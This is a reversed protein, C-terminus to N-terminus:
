FCSFYGSPTSPAQRSGQKRNEVEKNENAKGNGKNRVSTAKKAIRTMQLREIPHVDGQPSLQKCTSLENKFFYAWIKWERFSSALVVDGLDSLLDPSYLPLGAFLRPSPGLEFTGQKAVTSDFRRGQIIEWTDNQPRSSGAETRETRHRGSYHPGPKVSEHFQTVCADRSKSRGTELTAM